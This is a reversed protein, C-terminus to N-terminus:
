PVVCLDNGVVIDAIKIPVINGLTELSMEVQAGIKGASFVITDVDKASSHVTTVFQKKMGITLM